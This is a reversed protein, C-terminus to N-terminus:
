TRFNWKHCCVFSCNVSHISLNFVGFKYNICFNKFSPCDLSCFASALFRGRYLIGDRKIACVYIQSGNLDAEQHVKSLLLKIPLEHPFYSDFTKSWKKEPPLEFGGTRKRKNIFLPKSRTNLQEFFSKRKGFNKNM